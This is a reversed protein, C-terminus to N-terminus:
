SKAIFKGNFIAELEVDYVEQKDEEEIENLAALIGKEEIM